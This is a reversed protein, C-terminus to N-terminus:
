HVLRTSAYICTKHRRNVIIHTNSTPQHQLIILPHIPPITSWPQFQSRFEDQQLQSKHNHHPSIININASPCPHIIISTTVHGTNHQQNPAHQCSSHSPYQNITRFPPQNISNQLILHFNNFHHNNCM